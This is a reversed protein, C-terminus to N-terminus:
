RKSLSLSQEARSKALTRESRAVLGRIEQKTPVREEVHKVFEIIQGGSPINYAGNDRPAVLGFGLYNEKNTLVSQPDQTLAVYEDKLAKGLGSDGEVWLGWKKRDLSFGHPDEFFLFEGDDLVRYHMGGREPRRYLSTKNEVAMRVIDKSLIDICPGCMSSFHLGEAVRKAVAKVVPPHAWLLSNMEGALVLIEKQANLIYETLMQRSSGLSTPEIGQITGKRGLLSTVTM